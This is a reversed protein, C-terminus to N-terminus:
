LHMVPEITLFFGRIEAPTFVRVAESGFTLKWTGVLRQLDKDDPPLPPVDNRAIQLAATQAQNVKEATARDTMLFGVGLAVGLLVTVVIGAFKLKMADMSRLVGEM